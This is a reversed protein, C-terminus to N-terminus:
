EDHKEKMDAVIQGKPVFGAPVYDERAGNTRILSIVAYDEKTMNGAEISRLCQAVTAELKNEATERLAKETKVQNEMHKQYGNLASRLTDMLYEFLTPNEKQQEPM